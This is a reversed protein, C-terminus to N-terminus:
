PKRTGIITALDPAIRVEASVLDPHNLWAMRAQDLEGGHRPPWETFPTFDDIVVSGGPNLLRRVDAAV